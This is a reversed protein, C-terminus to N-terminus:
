ARLEPKQEVIQQNSISPSSQKLLDTLIPKMTTRVVYESLDTFENIISELVDNLNKSLDVVTGDPAVTIGEVHKLKALTIDKGFIRIYKGFVSSLQGKYQDYTTLM